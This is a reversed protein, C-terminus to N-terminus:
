VKQIALELQSLAAVVANEVRLPWAGLRFREFGKEAMVKVERDIWGGEAGIAVIAREIDSGDMAALYNDTELDPLLRRAKHEEESELRDLTENFFVMFRRHVCVEPLRTLRGQCLGKILHENFNEVAMISSSFYCKQVRWSNILHVRRV